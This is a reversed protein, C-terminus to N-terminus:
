APAGQPQPAPVVASRRRELWVGAALLLLSVFASAISMWLGVRFSTSRNVTSLSLRSSPVMAARNAM